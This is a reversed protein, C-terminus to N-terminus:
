AQAVATTVETTAMLGAVTVIGDAQTIGDMTLVVGTIGGTGAQTGLALGVM